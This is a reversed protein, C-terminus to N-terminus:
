VASKTRRVGRAPGNWSFRGFSFHLCTRQVLFAVIVIAATVGLWIAAPSLHRANKFLFYCCIGILFYVAQNIM